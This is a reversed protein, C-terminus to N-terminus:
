RFEEVPGQVRQEITYSLGPVLSSVKGTVTVAIQDGDTDVAVEADEVSKGTQALFDRAAEAGAGAEADHARGADVGAQAAHSAVSRAHFYLGTEIAMLALIVLLPFAVAFDIVGGGRDGRRRLWHWLRWTRPFRHPPM